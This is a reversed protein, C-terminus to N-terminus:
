GQSQRGVAVARDVRKPLRVQRVRAFSCQADLTGKPIQVIGLACGYTRLRVQMFVDM